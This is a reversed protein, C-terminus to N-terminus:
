SVASQDPGADANPPHPCDSADDVVSAFPHNTIGQVDIDDIEWGFASTAPDSGIRFRLKITQGAFATGFDLTLPEADPWAANQATFADRNALPNGAQDTITGTYGPTTSASADQWTAGGDTSVEIVGGDWDTTPDFEFSYRHSLTVVLPDVSGVVLSPSELASD